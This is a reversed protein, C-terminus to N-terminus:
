NQNSSGGFALSSSRDLDRLQSEIYGRLKLRYDREFTKLEDIRAELEAKQKEFNELQEKHRAEATVTIEHAKSEAENILEDRRDVGEQVHEDHLRRALALLSSAGADDQNAEPAAPAAQAAAEEAAPAEDVVVTDVAVTAPASSAANSELEAIKAKLEANEAALADREGILPHVLDTLIEDLYDEVESQLYGESFRAPSFTKSVIDEPTIKTKSGDPTLDM